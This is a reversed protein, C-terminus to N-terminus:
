ATVRLEILRSGVPEALLISAGLEVLMADCDGEVLLDPGVSVEVVVREDDSSVAVVPSTQCAGAPWTVVFRESDGPLEVRDCPDCREGYAILPLGPDERPDRVVSSEAVVATGDESVVAPDREGDAACSVVACSALLLGVAVGTWHSLREM